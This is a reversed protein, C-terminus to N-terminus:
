VVLDSSIPTTCVELGYNGPCRKYLIPVVGHPRRAQFARAIRYKHFGIDGWLNCATDIVNHWQLDGFYMQAPFKMGGEGTYSKPVLRRFSNKSWLIGVEYLATTWDPNVQAERGYDATTAVLPEIFVPYGAGNVTNFRLPQQDVAFKLGRVNYDIFMYRELAKRADGFGGTVVAHLDAKLGTQERIVDLVESSGSFVFHADSGSGFLEPSFEDTLRNILGKLYKFSV